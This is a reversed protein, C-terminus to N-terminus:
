HRAAAILAAVEQPSLKALLERAKDATSKGPARTRTTPAFEAVVKHLEAESKDMNERVVAKLQRLVDNHAAKHVAEAGYKKVLAEYSAPFDYNVSVEKGTERSKVTVKM